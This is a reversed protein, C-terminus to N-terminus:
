AQSRLAKKTAMYLLASWAAVMVTALIVFAFFVRVMDATIWSLIYQMNAPLADALHSVDFPFSYLFYIGVVVFLVSGLVEAPRVANRKGMFARLLPPVAGYLGTLYFIITEGSGFSPTFFGTAMTQSRVFYYIILGIVVVAALEWLRQFASLRDRNAERAAIRSMWPGDIFSM